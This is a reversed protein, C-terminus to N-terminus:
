IPVPGPDIPVSGPDVTAIITGASVRIGVGVLVHLYGTIPAAVPWPEPDSEIKFDCLTHGGTVKGGTRYWRLVKGDGPAGVPFPSGGKLRPPEKLSSMFSKLLGEMAGLKLLIVTEYDPEKHPM